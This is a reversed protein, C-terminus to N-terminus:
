LLRGALHLRVALLYALGFSGVVGGVALLVLKVEGPLGLPRMALALPVLVVSQLVYAGLSCRALTRGLLTTRWAHARVLEILWLSLGIGLAADVFGMLWANPGLGTSFDAVDRAGLLAAAPLVAVGVLALLGVGLRVRQSLPGTRRHEAAWVGLAFMVLYQPWQWQHLDLLSESGLPWRLRVIVTSIGAVVVAVAIVGGPIGGLAPKTASTARGPDRARRAAYGLSFLLLVLVFWLGATDLRALEDLFTQPFPPFRGQDSWAILVGLLPRVVLVVLVLPVGLRLLRRRVFGEVGHRHLSVPTLVGAIFFLLGLGFFAAIGVIITVLLAGPGTLAEERYVWSGTAGYTVAAHVVIVGAVVATRLLDYAPIRAAHAKVPAAVVGDAHEGSVDGHEDM